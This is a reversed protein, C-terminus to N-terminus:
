LLVNGVVLQSFKGKLSRYKQEFDESPTPAVPPAPPTHEVSAAHVIPDGTNPDVVLQDSNAEAFQLALQEAHEAQRQIAKPLSM